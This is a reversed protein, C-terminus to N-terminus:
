VPFLWSPTPTSSLGATKLVLGSLKRFSTSQNLVESVIKPKHLSFPCFDVDKPYACLPFFSFQKSYGWSVQLMESRCCVIVMILVIWDWAKLSGSNDIPFSPYKGEGHIGKAWALSQFTISRETSVSVAAVLRGLNFYVRSNTMQKNQSKYNQLTLMYFVHQYVCLFYLTDAIRRDFCVWDSICLFFIDKSFVGPCFGQAVESIVSKM